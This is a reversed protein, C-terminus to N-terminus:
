AADATAKVAAVTGTAAYGEKESGWVPDSEVYVPTGTAVPVGGVTVSSFEVDDFTNLDQDFAAGAGSVAADLQGLAGQLSTNTVITLPATDVLIQDARVGQGRVQAFLPTTCTLLCFIFAITKM